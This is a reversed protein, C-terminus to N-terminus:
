LILSVESVTDLLFLMERAFEELTFLFSSYANMLKVDDRRRRALPIMMVCLYILFVTENPGDALEDLEDVSDGDDGVEGNSSSGDEYV